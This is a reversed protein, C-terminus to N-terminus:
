PQTLTGLRIGHEDKWERCSINVNKAQKKFVSILFGLPIVKGPNM